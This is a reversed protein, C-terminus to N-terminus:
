KAQQQCDELTRGRAHLGRAHMMSRADELTRGRAMATISKVISVYPFPFRFQHLLDCQASLSELDRAEAEAAHAM